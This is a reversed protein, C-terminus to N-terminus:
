HYDIGVSVEITLFEVGVKILDDGPCLGSPYPLYENRADVEARHIGHERDTVTIRAVAVGHQAKMWFLNACVPAIDEGM